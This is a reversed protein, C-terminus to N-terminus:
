LIKIYEKISEYYKMILDSTYIKTATSERVYEWLISAVKLKSTFQQSNSDACFDKLFQNWQCSSNDYIAYTKKKYYIDLMDQLTFSFDKDEKVKKATAVMDANFKFNEIGTQISFFDRLKQNFAFGCELLKTNLKLDNTQIKNAITPKKTTIINGKYFEEINHLLDLKNGHSSIKYYKCIEKLEERYWYHQNFLAFTKFTTFHPRKM